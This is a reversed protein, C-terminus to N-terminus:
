SATSSALELSSSCHSCHDSSSGKEGNETADLVSMYYEPGKEGEQWVNGDDDEDGKKKQKSKKKSNKPSAKAVLTYYLLPYGLWCLCVQWPFRMRTEKYMDVSRGGDLVNIHIIRSETNCTHETPSGGGLPPRNSDIICHGYQLLIKIRDPGPTKSRYILGDLIDNLDSLTASITVNDSAMFQRGRILSAKAWHQENFSVYGKGPLVSMIGQSDLDNSCSDLSAIKIGDIAAVTSCSKISFSAAMNQGGYSTRQCEDRGVISGLNFSQASFVKVPAIFRIKTALNCKRLFSQMVSPSTSRVTGNEVAVVRYQFTLPPANVEACNCSFPLSRISLNAMGEYASVLSGPRVKQGARNDFLTVGDKESPVSQVFFAVPRNYRSKDAGFMAIAKNEEGESQLIIPLPARAEMASSIHIQVTEGLSWAGARDSVRFRFRDFADNGPILQLQKDGLEGKFIYKAYIYDKEDTSITSNPDSLVSGHMIDDRRFSTVRLILKGWKPPELIQIATISDGEDVDHGSLKISPAEDHELWETTDYLVLDTTAQPPDNVAKVVITIVSSKCQSSDFIIRDSVCYSLKTYLQGEKQSHVNFPPLFILGTPYEVHVAFSDENSGNPPSHLEVARNDKLEFLRGKSPFSTIFFLPQTGATNSQDNVLPLNLASLIENVEDNISGTRLPVRQLGDISSSNETTALPPPHLYWNSDHSNPDAEADENVVVQYPIAYRRGPPLGAALVAKIDTPSLTFDYISFQHIRGNWPSIGQGQGAPAFFSMIYANTWQDLRNSFPVTMTQIIRGNVFIQQHKDELTIVVHLLSGSYIRFDDTQFTHCSDFLNAQTRFDIQFSAGKQLLQFDFHYRDCEEEVNFAIPKHETGITFIPSVIDTRSQFSKIWLGFSIGEGKKWIHRLFGNAGSANMTLMPHDSAAPLDNTAVEVGLDNSCQTTNENRHFPAFTSSTDSSLIAPFVGDKCNDYTFSYTALPRPMVM